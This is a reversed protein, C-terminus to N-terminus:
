SDYIGLVEKNLDEKDLVHTYRQTTEVSSHGLFDRVKIINLGKSLLYTGCSHRLTHPTVKEKLGIKLSARKVSREWRVKGMPFIIKNQAYSQSEESKHDIFSILEDILWDPIPLVREKKRKAIEWRIRAKKEEWIIDQIRLTRLESQRLGLYFTTLVMLCLQKSPMVDALSLVHDLSLATAEKNKKSGSFKPINFTYAIEKLDESVNDLSKIYDFLKRLMARSIGSNYKKIYEYVYKNKDLSLRDLNLLRFYIIYAEITSKSLGQAELFTLFDIESIM